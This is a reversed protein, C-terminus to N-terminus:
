LLIKFRESVHLNLQKKNQNTIISIIKEEKKM